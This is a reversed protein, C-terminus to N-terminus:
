TIYSFYRIQYLVSLIVYFNVIKWSKRLIELIKSLIWSPLVAVPHAFLVFSGSPKESCPVMFNEVNSQFPNWVWLITRLFSTKVVNQVNWFMNILSFYHPFFNSKIHCTTNFIVVIKFSILIACSHELLSRVKTSITTQCYDSFGLSSIWVWCNLDM